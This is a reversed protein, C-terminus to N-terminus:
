YSFPCNTKRWQNWAFNNSGGHQIEEIPIECDSYLRDPYKEKELKALNVARRVLEEFLKNENSLYCCLIARGEKSIGSSVSFTESGHSINTRSTYSFSLSPTENKHDTQNEESVVLAHNLADVDNWLGETRIVLVEKYAYRTTTWTTYSEYNTSLHGNM